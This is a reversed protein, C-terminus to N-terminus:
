LRWYGPHSIRWDEKAEQVTCFKFGVMGLLGADVMRIAALAENYTLPEERSQKALIFLADNPTLNVNQGDCKGRTWCGTVTEASTCSIQYDITASCQANRSTTRTAHKIPAAGSALWCFM